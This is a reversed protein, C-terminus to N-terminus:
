WLLEVEYQSLTADANLLPLQEVVIVATSLARVAGPSGSRVPATQLRSLLMSSAVAVSGASPREARM